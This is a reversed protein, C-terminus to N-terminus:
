CINRERLPGHSRLGFVEPDRDDAAPTHAQEAALDRVAMRRHFPNPEGLFVRVAGAIDGSLDARIEDRLAMDLEQLPGFDGARDNRGVLVQM